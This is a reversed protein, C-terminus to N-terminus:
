WRKNNMLKWLTSKLQILKLQKKETQEAGNETKVTNLNLLLLINIFLSSSVLKQAVAVTLPM